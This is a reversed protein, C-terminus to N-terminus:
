HLHKSKWLACAFPNFRILFLGLLIGFVLMTDYVGSVVGIATWWEDTPKLKPDLQEWLFVLFGVAVFGLIDFIRLILTEPADLVKRTLFDWILFSMFLGPLFFEFWIKQQADLAIWMFLMASQNLLRVVWEGRSAMKQLARRTQPHLEALAAFYYFYFTTIIMTAAILNGRWDHPLKSVWGASHPEFFLVYVGLIVFVSFSSFLTASM